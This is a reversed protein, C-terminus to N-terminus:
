DGLAARIASIEAQSDGLVQAHEGAALGIRAAAVSEQLRATLLDGGDRLSVILSAVALVDGVADSSRTERDLEEFRHVAEVIEEAMGWNELVAKSVNVHWDNVISNFARQDSFLAPHRSARTLIYLEGINHLLGALLAVDPNVRTFRKAIVYAVSAVLVSRQWIANLLKEIGRYQEAKRLQAMAFTIAASRLMQFGIRAVATRLDAM